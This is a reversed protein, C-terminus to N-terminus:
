RAGTALAMVREATARDRTLEGVTRGERMVVIRDAMGLVEPLDSSIMVIALGEAALRNMLGYIEARAGVDVGRTPEDLILVRRPELLFRAVLVKQQNGGSLTGARQSLGRARVDFNSAAQNAAARESRLSLVVGGRAFRGLSTLTINERTDMWPFLGFAKRDETVYALGAALAQVPSPRELRTGDLRVDGTAPLAGAIALATSSRGAGVLGALAVIEGACASFTADVFRPPASLRRVDLVVGGIAHTRTPFEEALDRGVMWRIIAARDIESPRATGVVRGDRLVTIRDAIAQVEELRHSIYVIALGDARLRRM